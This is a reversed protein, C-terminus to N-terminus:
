APITPLYTQTDRPKFYRYQRFMEWRVLTSTFGPIYLCDAAVQSQKTNLLTAKHQDWGHSM